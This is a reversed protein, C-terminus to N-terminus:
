GKIGIVRVVGSNVNGQHFYIRVGDIDGSIASSDTIKFSGQMGIHLNSTTATVIEFVGAKGSGTETPNLFTFDAYIGEHTNNGNNFEANGNTFYLSTGAIASNGMSSSRGYMLSRGQYNNSTHFSSAATTSTRMRLYTGNQSPRLNYIEIRIRKYGTNSWGINVGSAASTVTTTSIVEERGSAPLNTLNSGDIAPLTGTLNPASLSDGPQLASNALTGQAATAYATSATAAATGLTPKGSLDAYAGTTAVTALDGPQTASNALTGQASTAYDTSATASATGLTPTGSLDTYSGSTAVTALTNPDFPSPKDSLDNFSGTTSVTALTSPDFPAPKDSLDDFSGSTAVTHLGTIDSPDITGDEIMSSFTGGMIDAFKRSRSKTM